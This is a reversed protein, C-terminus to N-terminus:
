ARGAVAAVVIGGLLAGLAVAGAHGLLLHHAGGYGCGLHLSLGGLAAGAAGLAAGVRGAGMPLVQRLTWIGLGLVPVMILLASQACHWGLALNDALGGGPMATQGPAVPAAFALMVAAAVSALATWGARRQNGLVQGRPPIVALALPLLFAALWGVIGLVVQGTPLHAWDPRLGVLLRLVLPALLAVTALWLFQRTPVRTPVPKLNALEARLRGAPAPPVLASPLPPTEPAEGPQDHPKM